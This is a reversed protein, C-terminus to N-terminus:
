RWQISLRARLGDPAFEIAVEGDLEHAVEREILESGLGRRAPAAVAPGGTEWWDITLRRAAGGEPDEEVAWGVEVVGEPASLAGYKVANTALEHLVMGLAVAQKPDLMVGPDGRIAIRDEGEGLTHPELEERAVEDLRVDGWQERAVLGYARALAEIRGQFAEAFEEPSPTRRLTQSALAIVVTLMNRVRHNLEHVLARQRWEAEVVSTIDLFTVIVGETVAGDARYPLVRALFHARGDRRSVRREIPQGGALVAGADRPLDAYDLHGALDALPRGRDTPIISFLEAIAPTFNRIVLQHDLFILAIRTSEFLNRLDNNAQNLQDLKASLEQNVTYLEENVSQVEEKSTELEENTSQLEENVSVLEENASKLEELVTEYEEITSQLRERTARLERDLQESSAEGQGLAGGRAIAEERSLPPGVDAFLV